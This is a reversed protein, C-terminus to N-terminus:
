AERGAIQEYLGVLSSLQREWSLREAAVDSCHRRYADGEAALRAGIRRVAGAMQEGDVPFTVVEGLGQEATLDAFDGVYRTIVVPLGCRVYEAFKVPSAVRNTLTDERLLLGVDGAMLYSAVQDHPAGRATVRDQPVGRAALLETLPRADKVLIFAHAEPVARLIAAFADAIADPRQYAVLSGCYCVALKGDFGLEQRRRARVAPDFHFRQTDVCCGVVSRPLDRTLLGDERLHDYMKHSVTNIADAHAFAARVDRESRWRLYRLWPGGGSLEDTQAGRVDFLIRIRPDSRRLLAAARTTVQGRCHVVIPGPGAYGCEALAARLRGAWISPEFPIGGVPRCKFMVKVGPLAARIAQERAPRDARNRHRSSTLVLLARSVQPAFQGMLGLPVVSQSDLVPSYIGDSVFSIMRIARPRESM